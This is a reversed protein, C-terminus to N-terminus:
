GERGNEGPASLAADAPLDAYFDLKERLRKVEALLFAIDAPAHAIVDADIRGQKTGTDGAVRPVECVLVEPLIEYASIPADEPITKEIENYQQVLPRSYVKCYSDYFWPWPTIKKLREEIAKLEDSM